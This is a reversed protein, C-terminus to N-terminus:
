NGEKDQSSITTEQITKNNKFYSKFMNLRLVDELLPDKKLLAKIALRIDKDKDGDEEKDGKDHTHSESSNLTLNLTITEALTDMQEDDKEFTEQSRPDVLKDNRSNAIKPKPINENNSNNRQMQTPNKHTSKTKNKKDNNKKPNSNSISKKKKKKTKQTFVSQFSPHSQQESNSELLNINNNELPQDYQKSTYIRACLISDEFLGVKIKEEFEEKSNSLPVSISEEKVMNEVARLGVIFLSDLKKCFFTKSCDDGCDFISKGKRVIFIGLFPDGKIDIILKEGYLKISIFTKGYIKNSIWISTSTIRAHYHQYEFDGSIECDGGSGNFWRLLSTNAKTDKGYKVNISELPLAAQYSHQGKILSSLHVVPDPGSYVKIHSLLEIILVNVPGTAVKSSISRAYNQPTFNRAPKLQNIEQFEGCDQIFIICDGHKVPFKILNEKEEKLKRTWPGKESPSTFLAMNSSANKIFLQSKVIELEIGGQDHNKFTEKALWSVEKNTAPGNLIILDNNLSMGQPYVSQTTAFSVRSFILGPRPIPMLCDYYRSSALVTTVISFIFAFAIM